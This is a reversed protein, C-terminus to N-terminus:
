GWRLRMGDHEFWLKFQNCTPWDEKICKQSVECRECASVNPGDSVLSGSTPLSM